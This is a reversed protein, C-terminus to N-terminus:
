SLRPLRCASPMKSSCSAAPWSATKVADVSLQSVMWARSAVSAARRSSSRRRRGGPRLGMRPQSLPQAGLQDQRGVLEDDAGVDPRPVLRAEAGLPVVRAGDDGSVVPEGVPPAVGHDAQFPQGQQGAAGGLPAVDQLGERVVNAVAEDGIEEGLRLGLPEIVRGVGGEPEEM